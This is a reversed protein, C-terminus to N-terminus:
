PHGSKADTSANAGAEPVVNTCTIGAITALNLQSVGSCTRLEDAVEKVSAADLTDLVARFVWQDKACDASMHVLPLDRQRIIALMCITAVQVNDAHLVLRFM